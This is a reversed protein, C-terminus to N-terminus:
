AELKTFGNTLEFGWITVIGTEYIDHLRNYEMRAKTFTKRGKFYFYAIDRNLPTMDGCIRILENTGFQSTYRVTQGDQIQNLDTIQKM